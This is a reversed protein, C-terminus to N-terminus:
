LVGLRELIAADVIAQQEAKYNALNDDTNTNSLLIKFESEEIFIWGDEELISEESQSDVYTYETIWNSPLSTAVKSGICNAKKYAIMKM